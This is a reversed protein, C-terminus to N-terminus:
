SANLNPVSVVLLECGPGLFVSHQLWMNRSTALMDPVHVVNSEACSILSSTEDVVHLLSINRADEMILRKVGRWDALSETSADTLARYRLVGSFTEHTKRQVVSKIVRVLSADNLCNERKLWLV